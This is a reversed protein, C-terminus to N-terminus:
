YLFARVALCGNLYTFVLCFTRTKWFTRVKYTHFWTRVLISTCPCVCVSYIYQVCIGILVSVYVHFCMYIFSVRCLFDCMIVLICKKRNLSPSTLFDGFLWDNDVIPVLIKWKESFLGSDTHKIIYDSKNCYYYYCYFTTLM